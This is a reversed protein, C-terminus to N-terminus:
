STLQKALAALFLNIHQRARGFDVISSITTVPTEAAVTVRSTSEDVRAVDILLVSGWSMFGPKTKAKVHHEADDIQEITWDLDKLAKSITAWVKNISYGMEVTEKEKRLYAMRNVASRVPHVYDNLLENTLGFFSYTAV